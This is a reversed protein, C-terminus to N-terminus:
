NLKFKGNIVAGVCALTSFKMKRSAIRKELKSELKIFSLQHIRSSNTWNKNPQLHGSPISFVSTPLMMFFCAGDHHVNM